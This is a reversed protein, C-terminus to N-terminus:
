RSATPTPSPSVTPSYMGITGSTADIGFGSFIPVAIAGVEFCGYLISAVEPVMPMYLGVTDGEGVGVADLYNAVQNSRRHLEHFTVERVDGPEGEWLLAVKNRTEADTRAHRNVVNHAINITGGPYWDTFRPGALDDRVRDYDEYFEIGLYDVVQDWFWDVNDTTYEVVDDVALDHDRAFEYVNTSEVFEQSPEHVIEDVEALSDM